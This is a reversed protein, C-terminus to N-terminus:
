PSPVGEGFQRFNQLDFHSALHLLKPFALFDSRFDHLNFANRIFQTKLHLLNAKREPGHAAYRFAHGRGGMHHPQVIGSAVNQRPNEISQPRTQAESQYQDDARQRETRQDAAHLAIEASPHVNRPLSKDFDPARQREEVDDNQHAGDVPRAEPQQDDAVRQEVPDAHAVVHTRFHKPQFSKREHLRRLAEAQWAPLDHQLM